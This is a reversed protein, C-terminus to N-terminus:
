SLSLVKVYKELETLITPKEYYMAPYYWIYEINEKKCKKMLEVFDDYGNPSIFFTYFGDTDKLIAQEFLEVFSKTPKTTDIRAFSKGLIELQGINSLGQLEMHEDTLIDRGNAYCSVKMGQSLFFRAIGMAIQMSAEIENEKQLYGDDELNLFIRITQMATYNKQNVKLEGARATAKWNV